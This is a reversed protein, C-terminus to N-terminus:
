EVIYEDGDNMERWFFSNRCPHKYLWGLNKNKCDFPNFSVTAEIDKFLVSGCYILATGLKPIGNKVNIKEM